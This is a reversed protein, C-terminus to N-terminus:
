QTAFYNCAQASPSFDRDPINQHEIVDIVAGKSESPLNCSRYYNLAYVYAEIEDIDCSTIIRFNFGDIHIFKPYVLSPTEIQEM